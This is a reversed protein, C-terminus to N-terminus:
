KIFKKLVRSTGDNLILLYTGSALNSVDIPRNSVTGSLFTQGVLNSIEFNSILESDNTKVYLLNDKVPNPYVIFSEDSIPIYITKIFVNDIAIDGEWNSGRVARFRVKITQNTYPSLDISKKLFADNQHRQQNGIIAPVVDNIYSDETKLDVHLEGMGKGFMHYSFELESNEKDITFCPSIFEAVDGPNAGSAEAYIYKGLVETNSNDSNPGTNETATEGFNVYWNYGNESVDNATWGKDGAIDFDDFDENLIDPQTGVKIYKSYTKSISRSKNSVRLTVDYIGSSYTHKPNKTTYDIVGDSDMDWEWKTINKCSSKFQVTLDEECTQSVDTVFDANFSPCSLYNKTTMFFAYMRALQQDTFHTRCGKRSYSMINQTDPKFATGNADTETGIYECFNNVNKNSLKPDAPTDCIGDGTTDCNSGDVLEETLTDNKPGHTHILSFFHGMEHALTSDNTVCDNKLVIVDQRAVNNSYGCISENADNKIYETLYINILGAVNYKETLANEDRKDFFLLEDDDIYNIGDCLFFEMQANKYIDNLNSIANKLESVSLGGTGNSRRFIHAKIPIANVTKVPIDGKRNKATLFAQEFTELQPKISQIYKIYAESTTTGCDTTTNQGHLLSMTFGVICFFLTIKSTFINM